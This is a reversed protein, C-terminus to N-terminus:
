GLDPQTGNSSRSTDNGFPLYLVQGTTDFTGNYYGDKIESSTLSRNWIRVEDISGTFYEKLFLSNAGIRVPQTGTSDPSSISSKNAVLVGDIYLKVESGDYRAVAYHWKSDNYVRPSEIFYETGNITEFGAEIEESDTMWIGYNLNTGNSDLGIGGKNVIYSINTGSTPTSTRFWTAVTFNTLQLSSNSKTDTYNSASLLLYPDYHYPPTKDITFQDKITRDNAYFTARMTLGDNVLALNLFGFSQTENVATFSSTGNIRYLSEGGTGVIAFIPDTPDDYAYKDTNTIIPNSSNLPNYKLPYSRQYNHVHGQLVIDVDYEDFLPHYIDRFIENPLIISPSTYIVHHFIVVIWDISSNASASALDNKVFNYQESGIEFPVETSMVVFHVNQFNFAYFQKTLGFHNMYQKLLYPSEYSGNGYTNAYIIHEHNGIAIKMKDDIPEVINLWCNAFETYSYDGLGLVLEPWKDITNNLTNTANIGCGWDGVAAFNIDPLAALSYVFYTETFIIGLLAISLIAILIPLSVLHLFINKPLDPLNV